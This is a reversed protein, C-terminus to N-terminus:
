NTAIFKMKKEFNDFLVKHTTKRNAINKRLEEIYTEFEAKVADHFAIRNVITFGSSNSILDGTAHVKTKNNTQAQHLIGCRFNYFFDEADRWATFHKSFNARKTLFNCFIDRSKGKSDEQGEYFSQITEVLLCNIALITFGFKKSTNSLHEEAKILTEAPEIYREYLRRELVGIATELCENKNLDLKLYEAATYGKCIEMQLEKENKL